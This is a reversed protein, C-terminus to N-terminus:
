GWKGPAPVPGVPYKKDFSLNKPVIDLDSNLASQFTYRQGTYAAMRGMIATMTSEAVRVGENLYPGTGTISAVLNIHEQVYPNIGTEGKWDGIRIGNSRGKTGIIDEFVGGASKSWHRSFSSMFVDGFDSEYVYECSFHDYIDGFKEDAPKWTRGGSGVYVARPPGGMVWNCVDLNHVHQEVINDGCMWCLGYWNRIWYELDSQGPQRDRAWPLGGCWYARLSRIEGIAGDHIRKITEIYEKQHRRQTGSVLSLGKEKAKKSAAIFQRIGAPDVAVPKETFIHKGANVAAEIHGPRAYPTTAHIVIDIDTNLLKQYGDLGWFCQEEEVAFKKSVAPNEHNKINRFTGKVKDEFVDALATLIVNPNGELMNIAAGTGRGGCGILGVKLTDANVDAAHAKGAAIAFGAAASVKAFDRRSINSKKDQNM